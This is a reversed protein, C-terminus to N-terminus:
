PDLVLQGELPQGDPGLFMGVELKLTERISELIELLKMIGERRKELPLKSFAAVARWFEVNKLIAREVNEAARNEV